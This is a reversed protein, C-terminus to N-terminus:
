EWRRLASDTMMQITLERQAKVEEKLEEWPRVPRKRRVFTPSLFLMTPVGANMAAASRDVDCDIFLEVEGQSRAYALHRMRLDQGEFAIRNDYLDAYGLIMNARCWHEAEEITGDTALVVRYHENMVRFLKIGAHIPDGTETRLVGDLSILATAM